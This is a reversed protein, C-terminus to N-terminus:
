VREIRGGEVRLLLAQSLFDPPFDSLHTTTVIVQHEGIHQTLYRRRDDDLESMVDDLLLVPQETTEAGMLEAEALKLSLVGTRQQGRSGFVSLDTDNIMFRLDDRHPGIVTVGRAIEERQRQRLGARFATAIQQQPPHQSPPHSGQAEHGLPLQIGRGALPGEIEVSAIYTLRLLEDGGTLDRHLDRVLGNLDDVVQLRRMLLYAGYDSLSHDWFELQDLARAGEQLERLLHNRQALVKNYQQLSRCYRQDIQCLTVDLYRRRLSPSGIVLDIDRPTFLVVNVQGIFDIARRRVGNVRIEKTLRVNNRNSLGQKVLTIEIKNLDDGRAVQAVLRAFPLPEDEALWNILERDTLAQPSRTTALYYIAELLNTKGQANDGHLLVTGLPLGLELRVYNRFNTLSLHTLHVALESHSPIGPPVPTGTAGM